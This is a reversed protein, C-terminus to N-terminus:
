TQTAKLVELLNFDRFKAYIDCNSQNIYVKTSISIWKPLGTKFVKSKRTLRPLRKQGLSGM